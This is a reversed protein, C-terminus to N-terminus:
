ETKWSQKLINYNDVDLTYIRDNEEILIDGIKGVSKENIEDILVNPFLQHRKAIESIRKEDLNFENQCFADLIEREAESWVSNISESPDNQQRSLCTVQHTQKDLYDEEESMIDDLMQRTQKFQAEKRILADNSINIVKRTIVNSKEVIDSRSPVIAPIICSNEETINDSINPVRSENPEPHKISAKDFPIYKHFQKKHQKNQRVPFNKLWVFLMITGLVIGFLWSVLLIIAIYIILFCVAVINRLLNYDADSIYQYDNTKM